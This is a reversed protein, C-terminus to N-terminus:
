IKFLFGTQQIPLKRIPTCAQVAVGAFVDCTWEIEQHHFFMNKGSFHVIGTCKSSQRVQHSLEDLKAAIEANPKRTDFRRFDSALQDRDHRLVGITDTRM